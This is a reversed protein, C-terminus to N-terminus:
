APDPPSRPQCPPACTPAAPRRDCGNTTARRPASSASRRADSAPAPPRLPTRCIQGERPWIPHPRRRLGRRTPSESPPMTSASGHGTASSSSPTLGARRSCTVATLSAPPMSATVTLGACARAVVSTINIHLNSLLLLAQCLALTLNKHATMLCWKLQVFFSSTCIKEINGGLVIPNSTVNKVEWEKFCGQHLLPRLSAYSHSSASVSPSPTSM